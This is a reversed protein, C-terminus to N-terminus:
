VRDILAQLREKLVARAREELEALTPNDETLPLHIAFKVHDADDELIFSAIFRGDDKHQFKEVDEEQAPVRRIAPPMIM